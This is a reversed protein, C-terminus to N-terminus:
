NEIGFEIYTRGAAALAAVPDDLGAIAADLRAELEAFHRDVVEFILATKDPFHRYISPPTVGVANAVARISVAESSGTALLLRETAAVIEAGLQRGERTRARPRRGPGADVSTM